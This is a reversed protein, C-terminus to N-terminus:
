STSINGTKRHKPNRAIPPFRGAVLIAPPRLFTFNKTPGRPNMVPLRWCWSQAQRIPLLYWRKRLEIEQCLVFLADRHGFM